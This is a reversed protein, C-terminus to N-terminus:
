PSLSLTGKVSLLLIEIPDSIKAKTYNSIQMRCAGCDSIIIDPNHENLAKAAIKGLREAANRNKEKFGYSGSFGCCNEDYVHLTLGPIRRLIREAPYPVGMGRLHCPIHYAVTRELPKILNFSSHKELYEYLDYTHNAIAEGGPAELIGPYDHILTHGCSTCSYIIDYGQEIYRNLIASNKLAFSRAKKLDGNGLAPLGCCIQKPVTINIGFSDLLTIMQRGEDPKNANLYCGHFFVAKKNGAHGKKRNRQLTNFRFEPFPIDGRLGFFGMIRRIIKTSTFLNAAPAFLSALRSVFDFNSFLIQAPSRGNRKVYSIQANLILKSPNVDYPCSYDCRGCQTCLSIWRDVTEIGDLRFREADPGAQKPGPYEPNVKFVPCNEVCITCRICNEFQPKM